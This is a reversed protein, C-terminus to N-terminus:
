DHTSLEDSATRIAEESFIDETPLQLVVDSLELYSRFGRGYPTFELEWEGYNKGGRQLTVIPREITEEKVDDKGALYEGLKVVGSLTGVDVRKSLVRTSISGDVPIYEIVDAATLGEWEISRLQEWDDEFKEIIRRKEPLRDEKYAARITESTFKGAFSAETDPDTRGFHRISNEIRLVLWTPPEIGEEELVARIKEHAKKSEAASSKLSEAGAKKDKKRQEYQGNVNDIVFDMVVERETSGGGDLFKTEGLCVGKIFGWVLETQIRVIPSDEQYDMLQDVMRGLREGFWEPSLDFEYPVGDGGTKEYLNREYPDLVRTVREEWQDGSLWGTEDLLEIDGVLAELRDPLYAVKREISEELRSPTSGGAEGERLYAKEQPALKYESTRGPGWRDRETMYVVRILINESM